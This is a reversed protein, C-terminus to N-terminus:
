ARLISNLSRLAPTWAQIHKRIPLDLTRKEVFVEKVVGRLIHAVSHLRYNTFGNVAHFVLGHNRSPLRVCIMISELSSFATESLPHEKDIVQAIDESDLHNVWNKERPRSSRFQLVTKLTDHPLTSLYTRDAMQVRGNHLPSLKSTTSRRVPPM